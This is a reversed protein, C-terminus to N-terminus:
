SPIALYKQRTKKSSLLIRLDIFNFNVLTPDVVLYCRKVGPYRKHDM